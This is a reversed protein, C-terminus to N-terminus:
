AEVARRLRFRLRETTTQHTYDSFLEFFQGTRLWYMAPGLWLPKGMHKPDFAFSALLELFPRLSHLSLWRNSWLHRCEEVSTQKM